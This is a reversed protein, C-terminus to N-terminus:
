LLNLVTWSSQLHDIREVIDRGDDYQRIVQKYLQILQEKTGHYQIDKVRRKLEEYERNPCNM